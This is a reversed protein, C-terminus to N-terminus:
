IAPYLVTYDPIHKGAKRFFTSGRYDRYSSSLPKSNHIPSMFSRRKRFRRRYRVIIPGVSKLINSGAEFHRKARCIRVDETWVLVNDFSIEGMDKNRTRVAVDIPRRLHSATLDPLHKGINQLFTRDGDEAVM